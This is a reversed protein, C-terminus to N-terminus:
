PRAPPLHAGGQLQALAVAAVTWMRSEAEAWVLSRTPSYIVADEVEEPKRPLCHMFAWHPAAGGEAALRETVRFGDFDAKRKAAAAEQGMSVWTDTVIVDAGRVAERPDHTTLVAAARDADSTGAPLRARAAAVVAADCEYGRPTALRLRYGMPGAASLLTNAINNGDGVWAVTLGSLGGFREQLTLLDALGQLPHDADSLANIVPVTAHACLATIDAHAFVRALILDNYNSLVRATDALTESKGLQIDESGAAPHQACMAHPLAHVRLCPPGAEGLFLAHGGLRAFGTETSVRTRTSRKQFIMSMSKGLLPQYVVDNKRLAAKLGASLTLLSNIEAASFSFLSDFHRGKVSSADVSRGGVSGASRGSFTAVHQRALETRGPLLRVFGRSRALQSLM